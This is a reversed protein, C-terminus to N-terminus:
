QQNECFFDYCAVSLSAVLIAFEQFDVEGDRNEDLEAMIKDISTSDKQTELYDSLENQLLDKLERRSLKNKDGEQSSYTHFVSVLTQMTQHLQSTM